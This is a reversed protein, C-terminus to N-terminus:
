YENRGYGVSVSNTLHRIPISLAAPLDSPLAETPTFRAALRDNGRSVRTAVEAYKDETAWVKGHVYHYAEYHVYVADGARWAQKIERPHRSALADANLRRSTMCGNTATAAIMAAIIRLIPIENKRHFRM